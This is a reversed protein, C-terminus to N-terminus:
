MGMKRSSPQFVKLDIKLLFGSGSFHFDTQLTSDTAPFTASLLDPHLVSELFVKKQWPM